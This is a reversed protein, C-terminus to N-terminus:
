LQTKYGLNLTLASAWQADGFDMPRVQLMVHIDGNFFRTSIYPAFTINWDSSILDSFDTLSM